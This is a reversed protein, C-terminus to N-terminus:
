RGEGSEGERGEKQSQEERYYKDIVRLCDIFPCGNSKSMAADEGNPTAPEADPKKENEKNVIGSLDKRKLAKDYISAM